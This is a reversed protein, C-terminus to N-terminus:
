RTIVEFWDSLIRRINMGKFKGRTGAYLRPRCLEGLNITNHIVFGISKLYVKNGAQSLCNTSRSSKIEGPCKHNGIVLLEKNM